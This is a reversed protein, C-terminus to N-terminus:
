KQIDQFFKSIYDKELTTEPIKFDFWEQLAFSIGIGLQYNYLAKKLGVGLKDHPTKSKLERFGIDNSAFLGEKPITIKKLEIGFKSPNKGVPSHVTASFRHWYASSLCGQEFMQRVVELSDITEQTSQTPFGYMLYAHVLINANRFNSTVKCVQEISVGKSILKLVRESAVELGGSVATLGSAALLNVADKTFAEDFRINGWWEVKLKRKIIEKAMNVLVIPPAAEDVFHFGRLGTEEIIREMQDVLAKSDAPDYRNIYELSIDCFTCKRWYCGHAAIMKNWKFDTWYRMMDNPYEIMSIYKKLNLGQYSPGQLKKFPVEVKPAFLNKEIKNQDKDFYWVKSISPKFQKNVISQYLLELPKEGDDFIIYNFFDFVRKDSLDRLETNVYGGGLITVGAPIYKKVLQAGKFAGYVNGVFPASFAFIDAKINLVNKQIVDNYFDDVLTKRKLRQLLPNFSSASASLKEAYRSLGFDRDIGFAIVDSIDDLFLSAIYKARDLASDERFYFNLYSNDKGIFIFRSSEPLFTRSNIKQAIKTTQKESESHNVNQLFWVADEICDLYQEFNSMFYKLHNQVKYPLISWNKRHVYLEQYIQFLGEKSFVSLILELSLDIQHADINNDRLYKVLYGTSPYPCNFQMLPPLLCLVKMSNFYM